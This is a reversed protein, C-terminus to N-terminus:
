RGPVPGVAEVLLTDVAALLEVRAFVPAKAGPSGAGGKEGDAFPASQVPSQLADRKQVPCQSAQNPICITETCTEPFNGRM